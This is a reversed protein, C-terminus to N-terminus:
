KFRTCPPLVSVALVRETEALEGQINLTDWPPMTLDFRRATGCWLHHFRSVTGRTDDAIESTDDDLLRDMMQDILEGLELDEGRHFLEVGVAIRLKMLDEREVM